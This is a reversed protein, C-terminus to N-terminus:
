APASGDLEFRSDAHTRDIGPTELWGARASPAADYEPVYTKLDLLPTGDLIDIGEVTLGKPGLSILRVRSLGIPNPRCPARTAFIGRETNDRFPVVSLRMAPARDFWYVLWVYEFGALGSLGEAYEPFVEVTARAGPAFVPQLPTGAARTYPSRIVGIQVLRMDM